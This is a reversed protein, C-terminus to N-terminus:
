SACSMALGHLQFTCRPVLLRHFDVRSGKLFELVESHLSCAGGLSHEHAGFDKAHRQWRMGKAAGKRWLSSSRGAGEAM